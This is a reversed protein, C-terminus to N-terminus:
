RLAGTVIETQAKAVVDFRTLVVDLVSDISYGLFFLTWLSIKGTSLVLVYVMIPIVLTYIMLYVENVHVWLNFNGLATFAPQASAAANRHQKVAAILIHLLAGGYAALTAVLYESGTTGAPPRGFPVQGVWHPARVAVFMALVAVLAVGLWSAAQRVRNPSAKTITGAAVSVIGPVSVPHENLWTLIRVRAAETPIEDQFEHHFNMVNGVRLVQLNEQLRPPVTIIGIEYIIADFDGVFVDATTQGAQWAAWGSRLDDWANDIRTISDSYRDALEDDGALLASADALLGTVVPGERDMLTGVTSVITESARGAAQAAALVTRIRVLEERAQRLVAYLRRQRSTIQASAPAPATQTM